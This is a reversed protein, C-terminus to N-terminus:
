FVRVESSVDAELLLAKKAFGVVSRIFAFIMAVCMLSDITNYIDNGVVSRIYLCPLLFTFNFDDHFGGSSCNGLCVQGCSNGFGTIISNVFNIPILMFNLVNNNSSTDYQSAIDDTNTTSEISDSSIFNYTNTINNNIANSDNHQQNAIQNQNNIIEQTDSKIKSITNYLFLKYNSTTGNTYIGIYISQIINKAPCVYNGMDDVECTHWQANTDILAMIINPKNDFNYQYNIINFTSDQDYHECYYDYESGSVTSRTNDPYTITYLTGGNTITHIDTCDLSINMSNSWFKNDTINNIFIMGKIKDYQRLDLNNTNLEYSYAQQTGSVVNNFTTTRSNTSYQNYYDIDITEAYVNTTIGFIMILIVIPLLIIKKM